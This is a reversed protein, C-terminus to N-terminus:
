EEECNKVTGQEKSHKCFVMAFSGRGGGGGGRYENSNQLTAVLLLLSIAQTGSMAGSWVRHGLGCVFICVFRTHDPACAVLSCSNIFEM